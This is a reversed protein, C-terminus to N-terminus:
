NERAATTVTMGPERSKAEIFRSVKSHYEIGYKAHLWSKSTLLHLSPVHSLGQMVKQIQPGPRINDNYPHDDVYVTFSTPLNFALNKSAVAISNTDDKPTRAGATIADISAQSLTLENPAPQVARERALLEHMERRFDEMQESAMSAMADIITTDRDTLVGDAGLSARFRAVAPSDNETM